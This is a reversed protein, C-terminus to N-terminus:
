RYLMFFSNNINQSILNLYKFVLHGKVFKRTFDPNPFLPPSKGIFGGWFFCKFIKALIQEIIMFNKKPLRSYIGIPWFHKKRGGMIPRFYDCRSFFTEWFVRYAGFRKKKLCFNRCVWLKKQSYVLINTSSDHPDFELKIQRNVEYFWCSGWLVSLISM